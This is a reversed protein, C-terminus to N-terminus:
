TSAAWTLHGHKQFITRFSIAFPPTAWRLATLARCRDAEAAEVGIRLQRQTVAELYIKMTTM